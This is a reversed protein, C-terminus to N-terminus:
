LIMVSRYHKLLLHGPYLLCQVSFPSFSFHNFGGFHLYLRFPKIRNARPQLLSDTAVKVFFFNIIKKSIAFYQTKCDNKSDPYSTKM